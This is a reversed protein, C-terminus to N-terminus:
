KKASQLAKKVAEEASGKLGSLTIGQDKIGRIIEDGFEEAVIVKIRWQALFSFMADWIKDREDRSPTTLGGGTM